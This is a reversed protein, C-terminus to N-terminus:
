VYYQSKYIIYKGTGWVELLVEEWGFLTDNKRLAVVPHGVKYGPNQSYTATDKEDSVNGNLVKVSMYHKFKAVFHQSFYIEMQNVAEHKPMIVSDATSGHTNTKMSVYSFPTIVDALIFTATLNLIDTGKWIFEYSVSIL